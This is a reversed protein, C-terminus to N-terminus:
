TTCIQARQSSGQTETEAWKDLGFSCDCVCEVRRWYYIFLHPYLFLLDVVEGWEMSDLHSIRCYLFFLILTKLVLNSVETGEKKAVKNPLVVAVDGENHRKSGVKQLLVSVFVAIAPTPCSVLRLPAVTPTRNM